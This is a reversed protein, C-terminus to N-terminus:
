KFNRSQTKSTYKCKQNEDVNKKNLNTYSDLM